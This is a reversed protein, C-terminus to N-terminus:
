GMAGLKYRKFKVKEGYRNKTHVWEDSITMGAARMDAIRAALRMIGLDRVADLQTIGGFDVMYQNIREVQTM